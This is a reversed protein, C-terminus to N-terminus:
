ITDKKTLKDNTPLPPNSKCVSDSNREINFFFGAKETGFLKRCSNIVGPNLRYATQGFLPIENFMKGRKVQHRQCLYGYFWLKRIQRLVPNYGDGLRRAVERPTMSKEPDEEFLMYYEKLVEQQGM